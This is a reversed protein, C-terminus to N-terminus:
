FCVQHNITYLVPDGRHKGTKRFFNTRMFNNLSDINQIGEKEAKRKIFNDRKRQLDPARVDINRAVKFPKNKYEVEEYLDLFKFEGNDELDVNEIMNPLRREISALRASRRQGEEPQDNPQFDFDPPGGFSLDVSTVSAAVHGHQETNIDEFPEYSPRGLSKLDDVTINDGLRDIIFSAQPDESLRRCIEVLNM